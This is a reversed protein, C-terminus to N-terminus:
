VLEKAIEEKNELLDTKIKDFENKILEPNDVKLKIDTYFKFKLVIKNKEIEIRLVKELPLKINYKDIGYINKLIVNNNTIILNYKFNVLRRFSVPQNCLIEEDKDLEGNWKPYDGTTNIHFPILLIFLFVLSFIADSFDDLITGGSVIRILYPITFLLAIVLANDIYYQIISSKKTM